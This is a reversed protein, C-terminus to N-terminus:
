CRHRASCSPWRARTRFSMTSSLSRAPGMTLALAKVQRSLNAALLKLDDTRGISHTCHVTGRNHGKLAPSKVPAPTGRLTAGPQHAPAGSARRIFRLPSFTRAGLADLRLSVFLASSALEFRGHHAPASSVLENEGQEHVDLPPQPSRVPSARRGSGCVCDETGVAFRMRRTATAEVPQNPSRTM